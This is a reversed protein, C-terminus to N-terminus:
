RALSTLYYELALELSHWDLVAPVSGLSIIFGNSRRVNLLSSVGM